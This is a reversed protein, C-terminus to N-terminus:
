ASTDLECHAHPAQPPLRMPKEHGSSVRYASSWIRGSPRTFEGCENSATSRRAQRDYHLRQHHDANSKRISRHRMPFLFWNFSVSNSLKIPLHHLPRTVVIDIAQLNTIIGRV